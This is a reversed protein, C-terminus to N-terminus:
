ISAVYINEAFQAKIDNLDRRVSADFLKDGVELVFGGILDEEVATVLDVGQNNVEAKIKAMIADSLEQDMPFATTLKVTHVQNLAKYQAIFATAIEPLNAERGKNLLLKIFLDTINTIKGQLLANLANGKLDAKIIPSRLMTTLERSQSAMAELLQMDANVAELQNQEQVIDILAKAYRAALRPNHM